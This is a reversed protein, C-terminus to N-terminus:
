FSSFLDALSVVLNSLTAGYCLTVEWWLLTSNTLFVLLHQLHINSQKSNGEQFIGVLLLKWIHV